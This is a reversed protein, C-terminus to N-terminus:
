SSVPVASMASCSAAPSPYAASTIARVVEGALVAYGADSPHFGDSSYTSPQYLRNDCMLDIVTIGRSTLPNLVSTTIGVAARQVTTRRSPSASALYPLTGLNPLNLIIIRASEARDRLGDLLANLDEGFARVQQDIYATPNAGGAGGGVADAIVNVDNAGAFVTFVTTERPVFRALQDLFNGPIPNGYQTGLDQFRRSIVGAPLGYNGVVVTFGDGRLRRAAVFVYGL